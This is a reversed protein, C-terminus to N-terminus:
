LMKSCGLEGAALFHALPAVNNVHTRLAGTNVSACCCQQESNSLAEFVLM